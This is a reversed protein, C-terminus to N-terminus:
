LYNPKFFDEMKQKAVANVILINDNLNFHQM